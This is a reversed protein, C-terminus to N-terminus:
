LNSIPAHEQPAVGCGDLIITVNWATQTTARRERGRSGCDATTTIAITFFFGYLVLGLLLAFIFVLTLVFIVVLVIVLITGVLVFILADVLLLLLLVVLAKSVQAFSILLRLFVLSLFSLARSLDSSLQYAQKNEPM